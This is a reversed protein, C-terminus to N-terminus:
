EFERLMLFSDLCRVYMPIVSLLFLASSLTSYEGFDRACFTSNAWKLYFLNTNSVDGLTWYLIRIDLFM